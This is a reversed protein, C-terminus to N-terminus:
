YHEIDMVKMEKIQRYLAQWNFASNMLKEEVLGEKDMLAYCTSVHCFCEFNECDEALNLLMLPGTVNVNLALDLRSGMDVNGACNIIVNLDKILIKKDNENM